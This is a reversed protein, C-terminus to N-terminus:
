RNGTRRRVVGVVSRARRPVRAASLGRSREEATVGFGDWDQATRRAPGPSSAFRGAPGPGRDLRRRWGAAYSVDETLSGVLLDETVSAPSRSRRCAGPPARDHGASRRRARVRRARWRYRSVSGSFDVSRTGSTPSGQHRRPRTAITAFRPREAAAGLSLVGLRFSGSVGGVMERATLSSESRARSSAPREWSAARSRTGRSGSGPNSDTRRPDDGPRDACRDVGRRLQLVGVREDFDRNDARLDQRNVRQLLSVRSGARAVTCARSQRVARDGLWRDALALSPRHDASAPQATAGPFVFLSLPDIPQPRNRATSRFSRRARRPRRAPSPALCKPETSTRTARRECTIGGDPRPQCANRPQGRAGDERPLTRAPRRRRPARPDAGARSAVLPRADAGAHLPRRDRVGRRARAVPAGAARPRRRSRGVVKASSTGTRARWTPARSTFSSSTTTAGCVARGRRVGRRPERGGPVANMGALQAVGRYMPYAAIAAARLQFRERIGRRSATAGSLGRVLVRTPPITPRAPDRGRARGARERHARDERGRSRASRM